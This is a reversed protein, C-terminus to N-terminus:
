GGGLRSSYERLAAQKSAEAARDWMLVGDLHDLEHQACVADWGELFVEHSGGEADQYTLRVSRARPILGVRVGPLSLCGEPMAAFGESKDIFPNFCALPLVGRSPRMIFVRASVAVQPAALGKGHHEEMVSVMAQALDHAEEGFAAYPEEVRTILIPDPFLVLELKQIM